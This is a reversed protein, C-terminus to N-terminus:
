SARAKERGRAAETACEDCMWTWAHVWKNGRRVRGVSVQQSATEGCSCECM